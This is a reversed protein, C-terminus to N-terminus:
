IRLRIHYCFVLHVFLFMCPTLSAMGHIYIRGRLDFSYQILCSVQERFHNYGRGQTVESLRAVCTREEGDVELPTQVPVYIQM